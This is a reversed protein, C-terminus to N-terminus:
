ARPNVRRRPGMKLIRPLLILTGGFLVLSLVLRMTTPSQLDGAVVLWAATGMTAYMLWVLERRAFRTGVTALAVSLVTVIASALTVNSIVLAVISFVMAGAIALAPWQEDRSRILFVYIAVAVPIVIMWNHPPICAALWLFAAAIRNGLGGPNLFFAVLALAGGAATLWSGSAVLGAGAAMLLTGFAAYTYLNRRDAVNALIAFCAAGCILAVCAVPLTAHTVYWIGGTGIVFAAATQAIGFISFRLHTGITRRVASAVYVASLLAPVVTAAAAPVPAYGEPLETGRGELGALMLVGADAALAVMWRLPTGFYESVAAIAVLAMSFPLLSEAGFLLAVAVWACGPGVIKALVPVNMKWALGQAVATFLALAAAAMSSPLAHLRVVAEWLLPALIVLSTAANLGAAFSGTSRAALWLWLGAYGIGLTIGLPAPLVSMETLARLLYAGGIGLLARGLAPVTDDSVKLEAIPPPESHPHPRLLPPHQELAAVRSELKQIQDFLDALQTRVDDRVPERSGYSAASM